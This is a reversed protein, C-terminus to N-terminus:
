LDSAKEAIMVTPWNTHARPIRPMVSADVVRLAELGRVRLQPDVVADDDVGMRCTGVPHYLTHARARAGAILEEDTQAEAGPLFEERVHRAFAPAAAIRRALRVGHLLVRLDEGDPD